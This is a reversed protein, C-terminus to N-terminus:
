FNFITTEVGEFSQAIEALKSPTAFAAPENALNRALRVGSSLVVDNDPGNSGYWADSIETKRM